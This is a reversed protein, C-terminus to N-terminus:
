KLHQAIDVNRFDATKDGMHDEFDVLRHHCNKALMADVCDNVDATSDEMSFNLANGRNTM